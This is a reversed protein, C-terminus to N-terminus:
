IFEKAAGANYLESIEDTNLVRDFIFIEDMKGDVYGIGLLNWAGISLEGGSPVASTVGTTGQDLSAAEESGDVYIKIDTADNGKRTIVVHHWTGITLPYGTTTKRVLTGSGHRFGISTSSGSDNLGVQVEYTRADSSVSNAYIMPYVTGISDLNIWFSLSLDGTIQVSADSGGDIYDNTGDFDYGGNLIGTTPTAGSVTGNNGNGSYDDANTDLPLYLQVGETIRSTPKKGTGSDYLETVEGSTLARSWISVDDMDGAYYEDNNATDYGIELDTTGLSLAVDPVALSTNVLSGDVYLKVTGNRESTMVANHWNGDDYTSVSTADRATTNRKDYAAIEGTSEIFVYINDDATPRCRFFTQRGSNANINFWWSISFDDGSLTYNTNISDNVGDFSYCGTGLKGTTLTAGSVTGDNDNGSMDNADVDFPYYAVLNQGLTSASYALGTTNYLRTVESASLARNYIVVEDMKGDFYLSLAGNNDRAGICYTNAQSIVDDTDADSAVESGDIYLKMGGTSSVTTVLHYWTSTTPTWTYTVNGNNGPGGSAVKFSSLASGTYYFLYGGNGSNQAGLFVGDGVVYFNVWCSISFDNAPVITSSNTDVYDNVGDFERCNSLQGAVETSGNNTGDNGQGSTDSVGDDFSYHAVIGNRLSIDLLISEVAAEDIVTPFSIYPSIAFSGM